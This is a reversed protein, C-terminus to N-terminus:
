TRSGATAESPSLLWTELVGKGRVDIVGRGRFDYERSVQAYVSRTVQITPPLGHSEMRSAVNVTDGWLDYIFKTSGIVGAVVPGSNIGIRISLDAGTERRFERLVELIELALNMIRRAHDPYPNSLGAVAMYADGITKIKEVGNRRAARDFRTFLENLLDVMEGPTTKSSLSTFGVLDAFM